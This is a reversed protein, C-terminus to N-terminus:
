FLLRKDNITSCTAISREVFLELGGPVESIDKLHNFRKTSSKGQKSM